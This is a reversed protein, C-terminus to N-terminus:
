RGQSNPHGTDVRRRRRPGRRLPYPYRGARVIAPAADPDTTWPSWGEESEIDALDVGWRWGTMEEGYAEATASVVFHHRVNVFRRPPGLPYGIGTWAYTGLESTLTLRPVGANAFTLFKFANRGWDFFPETAGAANTARVALVCQAPVDLPLRVSLSDDVSVWSGTGPRALIGYLNQVHIVSIPPVLKNLYIFKYEYRLPGAGAPDLTRAAGLCESACAWHHPHHAPHEARTITTVPAVSRATIAIQAPASVAGEDDVARVYVAHM